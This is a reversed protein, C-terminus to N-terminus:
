YSETFPCLFGMGSDASIIVWSMEKQLINKDQCFGISVLFGDQLDPRNELSRFILSSSVRYSYWLIRLRARRGIGVSGRVLTINGFCLTSTLM